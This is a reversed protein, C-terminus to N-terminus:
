NKKGATTPNVTKVDSAMVLPLGVIGDGNVDEGTRIERMIADLKSMAARMIEDPVNGGYIKELERRTEMRKKEVRLLQEAQEKVQAEFDMLRDDIGFDAQRKKSNSREINRRHIADVDGRFYERLILIDAITVITITTIALQAFTPVRLVFFYLDLTEVGIAHMWAGLGIFASTGLSVYFITDAMFLQDDTAKENRRLVVESYVGGFATVLLTSATLIIDGTLGYMSEFVKYELMAVLIVFFGIAGSVADFRKITLGKFFNRVYDLARKLFNSKYYNNNM